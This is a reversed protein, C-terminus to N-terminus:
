ISALRFRRQAAKTAARQEVLQQRTLDLQKDAKEELPNKRNNEASFAAATGFQLAAGATQTTVPANIPDGPIGNVGPLNKRVADAFAGGRAIADAIRQQLEPGLGDGFQKMLDELLKRQEAEFASVQREPLSPLGKLSGDPLGSYGPLPKGDPGTTLGPTKTGKMLDPLSFPNKKEVWGAIGDLGGLAQDAAFAAPSAFFLVAKAGLTLFNALFRIGFAKLNSELSGLANDFITALNSGMTGFVEQLQGGLWVAQDKINGWAVALNDGTQGLYHSLVAGINQGITSFLAPAYGAFQDFISRMYEIAVMAAAKVIEFSLAWNKITYEVTIIATMLATQIWQAIDKIADGATGTSDPLAGSLLEIVAEIATKVVAFVADFMDALLVIIPATFELIANWANNWYARIQQFIANWDTGSGGTWWAAIQDFVAFVTPLLPRLGTIINQGLAAMFDKSSAIFATVIRVLPTLKDVIFQIAKAAFMAGPALFEGIAESLSKISAKTSAIQKSFETAGPLKSGAFDKLAQTAAFASAVATAIPALQRVAANSMSAVFGKAQTQMTGMAAVSQNIAGILSSNDGLFKLTLSDVEAM